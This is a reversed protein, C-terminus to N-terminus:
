SDGRRAAPRPPLEFESDPPRPRSTAAPVARPEIPMTTLQPMPLIQVVRPVRRICALDIVCVLVIALVAGRHAARKVKGRM